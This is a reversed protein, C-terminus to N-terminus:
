RRSISHDGRESIAGCHWLPFAIYGVWQFSRGIHLKHPNPNVQCFVDHLCLTDVFLAINPKPPRELALLCQREDGAEGRTQNPHSAHALAWYQALFSCASPCVTFSIAGCNTLGYTCVFLCSAASASAIQSATARGVIRKTGM